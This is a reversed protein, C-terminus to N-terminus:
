PMSIDQSLKDLLEGKCNLVYGLAKYDRRKKIFLIVLYKEDLLRPSAGRIHWRVGDFFHDINEEAIYYILVKLNAKVFVLKQVEDKLVNQWSDTNENEFAVDFVKAYPTELGAKATWLWLMDIGFFEGESSGDGFERRCWVQYGQDKKGWQFLYDFLKKSWQENAVNGFKPLQHCLNRFINEPDPFAQERRM